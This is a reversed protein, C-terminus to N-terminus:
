VKKIRKLYIKALKKLRILGREMVLKYQNIAKMNLHTM